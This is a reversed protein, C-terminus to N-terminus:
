NPSVNALPVLYTIRFSLSVDNTMLYKIQQYKSQKSNSGPPVKTLSLSNTPELNKIRPSNREDCLALCLIGSDSVATTTTHGIMGSGLRSSLRIESSSTFIPQSRRVTIPKSALYRLPPAAPESRAPLTPPGGMQQLLTV